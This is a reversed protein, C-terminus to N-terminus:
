SYLKRFVAPKIGVNKTFLRSFYRVDRYGVSEAVAEITDNSNILKEKAKETRINVLYSSFNMGTEKKFLVSFYIPNLGVIDSISELTIKGSYNVDIYMKAERVPKTSKMELRKYARELYDSLQDKLFKKLNNVTNCHHSIKFLYERIKIVDENKDEIQEFFLSILYEAADFYYSFDVRDELAIKEFISDISKRFEESSYSKINDIFDTELDGLRDSVTVGEKFTIQDSYILRGTGRKIRSNVAKGASDVSQYIYKLNYIEPGIGITVQYMEFGLLYKEIEVLVNNILDKISDTKEESYNLLCYIHLLDDAYILDESIKDKFIKEVISIVRDVTISDQKKDINKYEWYDLKIDIIRFVPANLSINYVDEIDQSSYNRKELINKLIGTKIIQKSTNIEKEYIEDKEKQENELSLEKSVKQLTNNLENEDIPKLLYSKVGYQIAKHAYDFDKYGSIIVFRTNLQKESVAAILELGNMRPMQIDTIVIDPKKECIVKFADEGNSVTDICELNLEDWKILTKILIGIRFEDDAILVKLKDKHM